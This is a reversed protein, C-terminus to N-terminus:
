DQGFLKLKRLSAPKNELDLDSLARHLRRLVHQNEQLIRIFTEGTQQDFSKTTMLLATIAPANIAAPQRVYVGERIKGMHWHSSNDVVDRLAPFDFPILTVQCDHIGQQIAGSPHGLLALGVDIRGECLASMQEAPSLLRFQPSHVASIGLDNFLSTLTFRGNRVTSPIGVRLTSLTKINLERISMVDIVTVALVQEHLPLLVRLGKNPNFKKEGKMAAAVVDSQMIAMQVRGSRMDALQHKGGPSYASRCIPAHSPRDRNYVNCIIEGVQAHTSGPRDTAITFAVKNATEDDNSASGAFSYAPLTASAIFLALMFVSARGALNVKDANTM